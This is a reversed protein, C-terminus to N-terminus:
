FQRVKNDSRYDADCATSQLALITVFEVQYQPIPTQRHCMDNSDFGVLLNLCSLLCALM